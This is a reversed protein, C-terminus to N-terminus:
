TEWPTKSALGCLLGEWYMTVVIVQMGQVLAWVHTDVQWAITGKNGVSIRSIFRSLYIGFSFFHDRHNRLVKEEMRGTNLAKHLLNMWMDAPNHRLNHQVDSTSM